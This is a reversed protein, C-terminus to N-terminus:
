TITKLLPLLINQFLFVAALCVVILVVIWIFAGRIDTPM